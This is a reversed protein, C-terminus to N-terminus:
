IGGQSLLTALAQWFSQRVTNWNNGAAHVESSIGVEHWITNNGGQMHEAETLIALTSNQKQGIHHLQYPNGTAPDLAALGKRMRELNTRGFEDMYNLDLERVLAMSGNVMRPNLGAEKCINYQEMTKFQKIVDLPYGSERQIQAAENMTLGNLTAGKLAVAKQAGGGISGSIAGWKFGESAGLAAAKLIEDKDDTQLAKIIGASLGGLTSGKLAMITGTKASAAFILSVAPAGAGASVVSVTVCFLIVGTGIVVNKIIADYTDDYAEYPTVVTEGNSGLTFVYREGQFQEDLEELSYGFFINTRSNYAYEELYEKSIYVSSVNEVFYNSSNLETVLEEYLTDELYGLLSPDSLGTFDPIDPTFTPEPESEPEPSQEYSGQLVVAEGDGAGAEPQVNEKETTIVSADGKETTAAGCGSLLSAILSCVLILSILRKM